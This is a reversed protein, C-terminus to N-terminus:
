GGLKARAAELAAELDPDRRELFDERTWRVATDPEVGLGEIMVGDPSYVRMTCLTVAAKTGPLEFRRPAGTGAATPRGIFVADPRNDRLCAAFNDATSFTREDILCVLEGRWPERGPQSRVPYPNASRWTGGESRSQLQFYVSDPELLLGALEEGLLDTGGPNGRLDLILVEAHALSAIREALGRYSEELIREREEPTAVSWPSDAPPRFSGPRFYGIGPEIVRSEAEQLWPRPSAIATGAPICAVELEEVERDGDRRRLKVRLEERDTSATLRQLAAARRAGDTSAFCLREAAELLSGIPEGDVALVTDGPRPGREGAVGLVFVGEADEALLIPWRWAQQLTCGAYSVGAHGDRLGAVYRTLALLFAREDPEEGLLELAEAELADLDLGDLERRHELYSWRSELIGRLARIDDAFPPPEPEGHEALFDMVLATYPDGPEGICRNLGSHNRDAAHVARAPTGAAILAEALERSLTAGARRLGTHLILFPPIGKGAEVHHRPSADRWAPGPPGFATRYMRILGAPASLEGAYRPIDYAASDLLIAGKLISLDKGVAKLRREDTAVLAALHAGASHGMVFIRDPDGGYEGAHDHIWGLARAVDQVHVPHRVAPSLRYNVSVYVYGAGTFHPVKYRTMGGRAKDGLRWGGGHIMVLIPCDEASEPAYVDLCTLRARAGEVRHYPVDLHKAVRPPAPDQLLPTIACLLAALLHGHM